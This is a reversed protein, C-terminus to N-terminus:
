DPVNLETIRIGTSGELRVVEGYAVIQGNILIDVNEGASKPLSIISGAQLQLINRIKMRREDLQVTIGLLVDGFYQLEEVAEKCSVTESSVSENEM